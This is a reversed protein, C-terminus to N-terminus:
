IGTKELIEAVFPRTIARKEALAERDLLEVVDNVAAFSREIRATIFSVAAPDIQVQRDDFLKVLVGSLLADDPDSLRAVAAAQLRSKLDPLSISWEALPVSATLMLWGGCEALLNHLGLLEIEAAPDDIGDADEVAVCAGKGLSEDLLGRIQHISVVRANAVGAWVHALHTKGSGHPGFLILKRAPWARWDDVSRVATQNSPGVLFDQRGLAARVPLNFALQRAM